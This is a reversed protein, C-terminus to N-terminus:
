LFKHMDASFSRWPHVLIVGVVKMPDLLDGLNIKSEAPNIIQFHQLIQEIQNNGNM